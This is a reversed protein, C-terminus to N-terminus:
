GGLISLYRTLGELEVNAIFELFPTKDHDAQATELTQYYHMRTTNDGKINAIVYGHQLLILNMWLRSTRGNGDIFPHVTVIKESMEAALVIPHLKNKNLNYWLFIDEMQKAILFPQPPIHRSGKIMVNVTRYKGANEPDIGRLILNHVQLLDSEKLTTNKNVLEKIFLVADQHNIAELHERMSKGSVTIGENIVLDTEMLTLTNGEIRNSEFTYELELAQAIRFSDLHRLNLLKKKEDDIKRLIKKVDHSIISLPERTNYRVKEEAIRMAKLALEDNGIEYLIVESLWEVLLKETDIDLITALKIVQERTPKRTGKEWKSILAADLSMKAALDRMLLGKKTRAEKLLTKM